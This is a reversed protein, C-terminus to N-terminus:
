ASETALTDGDGTVLTDGGDTVLLTPSPTAPPPLSVPPGGPRGLGLRLRRGGLGPAAAM